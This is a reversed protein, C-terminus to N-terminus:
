YVFINLHVTLLINFFVRLTIGKSFVTADLNHDNHIYLLCYQPLLCLVEVYTRFISKPRRCLYERYFRCPEASSTSPRYGAVPLNISPLSKYRRQFM